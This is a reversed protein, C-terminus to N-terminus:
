KGVLQPLRSQRREPDSAWEEPLYLRADVQAHGRRSAYTCYVINIANAVQGACGVYQPKVGATHGGKKQQGTEDLVAVADPDALQEVVFGRM